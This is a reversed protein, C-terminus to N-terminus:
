KETLRGHVVRFCYSSGGGVCFGAWISSRHRVLSARGTYRTALSDSYVSLPTRLPSVQTLLGFYYALVSRPVPANTFGYM